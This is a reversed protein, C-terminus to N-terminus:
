PREEPGATDRVACPALIAESMGHLLKKNMPCFTALVGGLRIEDGASFYYPSLRVRGKLEVIRDTNSEWYSMTYPRGSVFPQLVYPTQAFGNVAQQVAEAWAEQPLDHGVVVGRSGWALPSFGSPKLILQRAKQSARGIQSWDTVPEGEIELGPIVAHPPLPAPDVIWTPPIMGFLVALTEDPLAKRWSARLAPHHLLAFALKEELYTKPPPTMAVLGKKAAYLLLDSKPINKLDFLEFFRYLVDIQSSRGNVDCELHSETFRIEDPAVCVAQINHRGLADALWAMEARYDRSEESVVIALLPNHSSPSPGDHPRHQDAAARIMAAFGEIMGHPGGILQNSFPGSNAYAGALAATLGIGGPVADLETIAWNAGAAPIIDPRIVGPLQQKFRNMRGLDIITEPKGQDFYRSIWVPQQGKRSAHYLQNIARYFAQLHAGLTQFFSAEAPTLWFPEPSIRWTNAAPASEAHTPKDGTLQAPQYLGVRGLAQGIAQCRERGATLSDPLVPGQQPQPSDCTRVAM